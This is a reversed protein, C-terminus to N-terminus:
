RASGIDYGIHKWMSRFQRLSERLLAHSQVKESDCPIRLIRAVALSGRQQLPTVLAPPFSERLPVYSERQRLPTPNRSSDSPIRSLARLIRATPCPKESDCLIRATTLARQRLPTPNRSSNGNSPIRTLAHM